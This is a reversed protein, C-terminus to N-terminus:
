FYKLVEKRILDNKIYRCIYEYIKPKAYEKYENIIDDSEYIDEYPDDHKFVRKINLFIPLKNINTYTPIVLMETAINYNYTYKIEPVIMHRKRLMYGTDIMIIKKPVHQLSIESSDVDLVINNIKPVNLSLISNEIYVVADPDQIYIPNNLHSNYITIRQGSINSVNPCNEISMTSNSHISILNPCDKFTIRSKNNIITYEIDNTIIVVEIKHYIDVIHEYNICNIFELRNRKYYGYNIKKDPKTIINEFELTDCFETNIEPLNNLDTIKTM